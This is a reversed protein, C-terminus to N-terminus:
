LGEGRWNIRILDPRFKRATGRPQPMIIVTMIDSIVDRKQSWSYSAWRADIDDAGVLDILAQSRIKDPQPEIAALREKLSASTRRFQETTLVGENWLQVADEIKQTLALSEIRHDGTDAIINPAILGRSGRLKMWEVAVSEVLEDVPAQSRNCHASIACQYVTWNERAAGGCRTSRMKTDLGAEQCKGCRAIGSLLYKGQTNSAGTHRAPNTVIARVRAWTEYDIIAPWANEKVVKLRYISAGYNRERLLIRQVTNGAWEKSQVPLYGSATWQRAIASMSVSDLVQQYAKRILDAEPHNLSVGDKEYGFPRRGGRYIGREAAQQHARVIREAKHESEARDIVGLMRAVMRGSSTELNWSGATVFHTAVSRPEVKDIYDEMEKIQRHLRDPHWALVVDIQNKDIAELMALYGPRKKKSYASIDNDTFVQVVEVGLSQALKACDESQREVGLGAGTKDNSIRAYVGARLPRTSQNQLTAM